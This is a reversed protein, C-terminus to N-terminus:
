VEEEQKEKEEERRCNRENSILVQVLLMFVLLKATL